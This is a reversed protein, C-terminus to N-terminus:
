LYCFFLDRTYRLLHDLLENIKFIYVLKNITLIPKLNNVFNTSSIVEVIEILNALMQIESVM